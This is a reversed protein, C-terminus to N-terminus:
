WDQIWVIVSDMLTYCVEIFKSKWYLVTLKYIFNFKIILKDVPKKIKKKKQQQLDSYNSHRVKLSTSFFYKWFNEFSFGFQMFINYYYYYFGLEFLYIFSSNNGFFYKFFTFKAHINEEKFIIKYILIAKSSFIVYYLGFLNSDTLELFPNLRDTSGITLFNYGM